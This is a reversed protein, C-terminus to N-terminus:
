GAGGAVTDATSSVNITTGTSAVAPTSVSLAGVIALVVPLSRGAPRAVRSVQREGPGGTRADDVPEGKRKSERPPESSCGRAQPIGPHDACVDDPGLRSSRRVGRLEGAAAAEQRVSTRESELLEPGQEPGQEGHTVTPGSPM